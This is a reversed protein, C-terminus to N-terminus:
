SGFIAIKPTLFRGGFREILPACYDDCFDESAERGSKQAFRKSHVEADLEDMSWLSLADGNKVIQLGDEIDTWRTIESGEQIM